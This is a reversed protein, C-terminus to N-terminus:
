NEKTQYKDRFYNNNLLYYKPKKCVLIFECKDIWIKNFRKYLYDYTFEETHESAKVCELFTEEVKILMPLIANSEKDLLRNSKRNIRKLKPILMKFEREGSDVILEDLKKQTAIM